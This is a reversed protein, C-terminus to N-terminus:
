QEAGMIWSEVSKEEEESEEEADRIVLIQQGVKGAVGRTEQGLYGSLRKM